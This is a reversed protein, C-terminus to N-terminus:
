RERVTLRQAVEEESFVPGDKCVFDPGWQCRGCLGVACHMNREMSLYIRNGPIGAKRAEQAVFRMMIEPGCTMVTCRDPDLKLGPMLRTVVGM